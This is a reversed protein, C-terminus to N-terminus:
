SAGGCVRDAFRELDDLGSPGDFGKTLAGLTVVFLPWGDDSELAHTVHRHIALRAQATALRKRDVPALSLLDAASMTRGLHNLAGSEGAAGQGSAAGDRRLLAQAVARVDHV